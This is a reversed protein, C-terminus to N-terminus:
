VSRYVARCSMLGDGPQKHPGQERLVGGARGGVDVGGVGSSVVLSVQSESSCARPGASALQSAEVDARGYM